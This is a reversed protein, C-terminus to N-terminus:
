RIVSQYVAVTREAIRRQTYRELVRARGRKGLEARLEANKLLCAMAERLAAPDGEPVVLGADGIVQPIEGSSSGIVPVGCAMAEVLARGFQEKWHRRTLSPQVLISFSRLRDPIQDSPLGPEWIIRDAIGLTTARRRARAALPGSGVVHLRWAGPLTALADLLVLIGKEEVLRSILGITPADRACAPGPSFTDPDVGFQPIIEVAGQYGKKRLVRVAEANGAIAAASHVFVYREFWSFPPPYRRLLNQWTFFVSRAGARRALRTGLATALNYPEEDLHVVDPRVERLVRGLTPWYFLHFSGNFRIPEVRLEYGRQSPSSEFIVRRGGPEHWAPATVAVLRRIGPQAAIEELKRRYAAVVLIKSVILVHM